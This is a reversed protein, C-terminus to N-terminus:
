NVNMNKVFSFHIYHLMCKEFYIRANYKKLLLEYEDSVLNFMLRLYKAM